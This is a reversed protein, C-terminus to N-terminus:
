PSDSERRRTRRAASSAASREGRDTRLQARLRSLSVPTIGLYSAIHHHAVRDELDPHLRRLDLLRQVAPLAALSWEREARRMLEARLVADGWRQVVPISLMSQMLAASPFGAVRAATMAQCDVRSREGATRTIAPMLVGPGAHFALTVERGEADAVSTRLIGDLVFYEPPDTDGSRLLTAGAALCHCQMTQLVAGFAAEDLPAIAQAIALVAARDAPDM